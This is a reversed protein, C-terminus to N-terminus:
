EQSVKTLALITPQLRCPALRRHRESGAALAKGSVCRAGLEPRFGSIVTLANGHATM